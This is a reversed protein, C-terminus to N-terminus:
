PVRSDGPEKAIKFRTARRVHTYRGDLATVIAMSSVVARCLSFTRANDEPKRSVLAGIIEDIGDPAAGDSKKGRWLSVPWYYCSEIAM